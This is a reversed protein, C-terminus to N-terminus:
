PKTGGTRIRKATKTRPIGKKPIRTAGTTRATRTVGDETTAAAARAIAV